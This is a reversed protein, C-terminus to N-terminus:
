LLFEAMCYNSVDLGRATLALFGNEEKLLGLEKQREIVPGYVARCEKGFAERFRNLSVGSLMRLGLFMTEEMQERESLEQLDEKPFNGALYRTLDDTNRWRKEQYLSSAGLGFGLYDEREWYGINHRCAYGPRAYNSIEYHGYGASCLISETDAYMRREEEETPLFFPEKGAERRAADEGYRAYFPTGEEVILSYASIHEPELETVRRLTERWSEPSQGPLASILDVNINSFGLQRALRFNRLFEEWTHIRGLRRLEENDASQLGISLRNIGARRYARLKEEDLTGPNCEATIEADPALRFRRGVAALIAETQEGKLISPTGGGLFVSSVERDEATDWALIEATLADVYAARRGGPAAFSLFDCYGCKKVCFPIHIYIELKKSIM